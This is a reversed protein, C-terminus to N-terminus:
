LDPKALEREINGILLQQLEKTPPPHVCPLLRIDTVKHCYIEDSRVRTLFEVTVIPQKFDPLHRLIFTFIM